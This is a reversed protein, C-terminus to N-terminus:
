TLDFVAVAFIKDAAVGAANFTFVDITTPGTLYSIQGGVLGALTLQASINNPLAPPSSLTLRYQGTGLQTVGSFGHPNGFFTGNSNVNAAAIVPPTSGPGTAGTAGASGTSGTPGTPGTSGTDGDRGDHGDHGDHGRKGRKGRKGREGREGECDDECLPNSIQIESM